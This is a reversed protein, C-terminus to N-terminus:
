FDYISNEKIEMEDVIIQPTIRGCWENLNPKGVCTISVMDSKCNRIQNLEEEAGFKIYTMGNVVMKLTHKTGIEKVDSKKITINEVAIKPEPCGQGWYEDGYALEMILDKIRSYNGDVVFDVEYFGGNFDINALKTNAYRILKDVNRQHVGFGAANAHGDAYDMLSSDLLFQRFDKLESDNLGRISGKILGERNLRGLLTPKRYKAAINMAILGTLNNSVNLDDARLFLIKNEDLCDNMIQIDLLEVAKEKERNQRDRANNCYRAIQTAITEMEGKAGRKTSPVEDYGNTFAKFLLEKESPSGMRILANILPTIYFTVGMQHLKGNTYYTDSWEEKKIGFLPYCQEKIITRFLPNEIHSLGYNCWYRNEPTVQEMMDSLQGLAVIDLYRTVCNLGLNIDCFELFKYVIGVGSADKNPYDESLQNNIVVAHESYGEAQHHDLVLIDYGMEKLIKHEEYDNSSSDPLVILDCIKRETLEYM